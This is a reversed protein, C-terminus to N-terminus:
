EEQQEQKGERRGAVIAAAEEDLADEEEETLVLSPPSNGPVHERLQAILDVKGAYRLHAEITENTEICRAPFMKELAAVQTDTFAPWREAELQWFKIRAM